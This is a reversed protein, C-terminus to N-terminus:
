RWTELRHTWVKRSIDRTQQMIYRTPWTVMGWVRVGAFAGFSM